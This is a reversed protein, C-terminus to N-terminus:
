NWFLCVFLCVFVVLFFGPVQFCLALTPSMRGNVHNFARTPHREVTALLDHLCSVTSILCGIGKYKHTLEELSVQWISTVVFYVGKTQKLFFLFCSFRINVCINPIYFFPISSGIQMSPISVWIYLHSTSVAPSTSLSVLPTFLMLMYVSDHKFHIAPSLNSYLVLLGTEHEM